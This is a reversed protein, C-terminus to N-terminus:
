TMSGPSEPTHAAHGSRGRVAPRPRSPIVVAQGPKARLIRSRERGAAKLLREMPEDPHEDGLQFTSHHVPLLARAGLRAFMAWVQEPDAHAHIWPEYAGIGFVALDVPGLHDFAHTHATDGALLVSGCPQGPRLLYSNYGRHRDWATRAGWHRPKVARVTLVPGAGDPTFNFTGGWDLEHVPGFGPPILRRTRRATVVTTGPSAIARLTPRDLHDFHAHTILLLDIPPLEAPLVPPPATRRVGVTWGIRGGLRVGIRHSLVPDVLVTRGAIGLLISAHGLWAAVGAGDLAANRECARAWARAFRSPSRPAAHGAISLLEKSYRRAGSRLAKAVFQAQRRM